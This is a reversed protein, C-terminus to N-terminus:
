SPNELAYRRHNEELLRDLLEFRAEKSVTWRIGIKTPHHGIKLALDDWGYARMVAEDIAVHIDRLEQVAPEHIDPNHVRKYTKTLGWARSLMLERRNENLQQGLAELEPTQAPLPLTLFVNSPLYRIRTEQTSTYRIVWIAHASSSLIAMSGVDNRAFVVCQQDFVQESPVRAPALTDSVQAIALVNDLQQITDYLEPRSREYLWWRERASQSYNNRDREPKVLRRVREICASYEEAQELSLGSFNIIWRSGSCDPRQNLDRGIVYPQIVETNRQDLSILENREAETLTFGLGLVTTGTFAIDDNVRLRYPRGKIRGYAQLDDGIAPVEEGDLWYTSRSSLPLRSAWLEVIQM